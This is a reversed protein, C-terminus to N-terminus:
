NLVTFSARWYTRDNINRVLITRPSGAVSCRRLIDVVSKACCTAIAANKGRALAFGATTVYGIVKSGAGSGQSTDETADFFNRPRKAVENLSRKTPLAAAELDEDSPTVVIANYGAGGRGEFVLALRVFTEGVAETNDAIDGIRRLLEQRIQLRTGDLPSNKREVFDQVGSWLWSLSEESDFSHTSQGGHLFIDTCFSGRVLILSSTEPVSFHQSASDSTDEARPAKTDQNTEEAAIELVRKRLGAFDPKFPHEIGLKAYNLRKGKPTRNYKALDEDAKGCAWKQQASTEPCDYPYFSTLTEFSAAHRERNGIARAGAFVFCHWFATGWGKPVVVDWGAVLEHMNQPLKWMEEGKKSERGDDVHGRQILLIPIRCANAYDKPLTGPLLAESRQKNIQSEKPKNTALEDRRQRSWVLSYAQDRSAEVRVPSSNHDPTSDLRSPTKLPMVVRPDYVELGLVIGSPLSAPTRLANLSKWTKHAQPSTPSECLELVHQLMPHARPGTLEFRLLESDLHEIKVDLGFRDVAIRMQAFALELSAPHLWIWMTRPETSIHDSTSNARERPKWLFSAPGISGAPYSLCEYLFTAGQRQGDLYRISEVSPLSPDAIAEFLAAISSQTGEFQIQQCYSIDAITCQNKMSRYAARTSKDNPHEPISYGWMDMMHMRKAHWVHTELWKKNKQRKEFDEAKNSRRTKNKSSKKQPNGPDNANQEAARQQVRKPLRKVNYSAARRRMHRPLMQWVRKNGTHETANQLAKEIANIEFARAECYEVVDLARQAQLGSSAAPAPSPSQQIEVEQAARKRAKKAQAATLNQESARKM